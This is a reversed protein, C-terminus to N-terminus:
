AVFSEEGLFLKETASTAENFRVRELFQGARPLTSAASPSVFSQSSKAAMNQIRRGGRFARM